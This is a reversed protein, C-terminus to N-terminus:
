TLLEIGRKFSDSFKKYKSFKKHKPNAQEHFENVLEGQEALSAKDDTKTLGKLKNILNNEVLAQEAKERIKKHPDVSSGLPLNNSINFLAKKIVSVDYVGNIVFEDFVSSFQLDILKPDIQNQNVYINSVFNVGDITANRLFNVNVVINEICSKYEDNDMFDDKPNPDDECWVGLNDLNARAKDLDIPATVKLAPTQSLEVELVKSPMEPRIQTQQEQM